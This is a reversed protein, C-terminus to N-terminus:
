AGILTPLSGIQFSTNKGAQLKVFGVPVPGFFNTVTKDTEMFPTALSPMTYAGAQLYFQFWGDPKQIFVQGNTLSAQTSNDGPVSNGQALGSGALVGNVAIKGLPGAQFNAPPLGSLPGGMAPQGLPMPAAPAAPAPTQGAPKPDSPATQASC